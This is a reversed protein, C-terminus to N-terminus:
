VLQGDRLYEKEVIVQEGGIFLCVPGGTEVTIRVQEHRVDVLLLSGQYHVKFAYGNWHQPLTFRFHLGDPKIRLGAFGATVCLYAGGMNATHIGDRTNKHRNDLDTRVTELFYDYAKEAMGLRSAMISFICASLSSDHTTIKEYYEYGRRMDEECLGDEFLYYALVADAQKCVQHRYLHLPHYHLLLPYHEQPTNEFDWLPKDLFSDDQGHLKKENDYPLYISAAAKEFVALEEEQFGIKQCVGAERGEAKLAHYVRVAGLLNSRASLNTYFNNNVVCTYEDPGTVDQICFRNRRDYHGADIWIRATELLVEAGKEEMYDLDGTADWYQLFSHAVDGTIHYQASGSPFYSSCETGTITRWPYLAGRSHGMIRAHGRAGDLVGYRFDLLRRAMGPNTLLFFPLIYIETDWFYHGEYGEGSLGKAAVNSIKDQGASQLLGYVNYEMGEHIVDDGAIKVRANEWFRELYATQEAFLQKAGAAVCQQAVDKAHAAPRVHRRRDSMVTYKEVCFTEGAQLDAAARLLFGQPTEACEVKATQPLRHRQCVAMELNSQGTHCRLVAGDPLLDVGDLFIHQQKEAAMRPDEPNVYNSVGSDVDSVMELRGGEPLRIEITTLFLEQRTFSAMRVFALEARKGAPTKWCLTRRATGTGTDLVREYTELGGDFPCFLEGDIWIRTTQADPLNVMRQATEPFGYLKEPYKLEVTDYYGNIYSGRIGAVGEPYGEEFNGRVGLYGNAVHFLSEEVALNEPELKNKILKM